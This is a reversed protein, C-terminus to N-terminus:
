VLTVFNCDSGVRSRPNFNMNRLLDKIEIM